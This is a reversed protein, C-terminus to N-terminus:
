RWNSNKKWGRSTKWNTRWFHSSCIKSRNVKQSSRFCYRWKTKLYVRESEGNRIFVESWSKLERVESPLVQGATTRAYFDRNFVGDYTFTFDLNKSLGSKVQETTINGVTIFRLREEPSLRLFEKNTIKKFQETEEKTLKNQKLTELTRQLASSEDEIDNLERKLNLIRERIESIEISDEKIIDTTDSKSPNETILQLGTDLRTLRWWVIKESSKLTKVKELIEELRELKEKGLSTGKLGDLEKKLNNIDSESEWKIDEKTKLALSTNAWTPIEEKQKYFLINTKESFM